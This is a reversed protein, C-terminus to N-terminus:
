SVNEKKQLESVYENRFEKRYQCWGVFNGSRYGNNYSPKAVHEFPSWHGSSSLRDHLEYDKDHDRTGDHTLYSVRACRAASLMKQKEIDLTREDEQLYPLHWEDFRTFRPESKLYEERMMEAINRIEPQAAPHCRLSFFNNWETATVIVTIEMFPELVRNVLQKHLGLALLNEAQEVAADRARLWQAMAQAKESEDLEVEAQMGSQNKGWWVPMAPDEKVKSLMKTIPIARSSAANRSFDRHTMFESHVFRQYTIEMTTIRKQLPSVSDAIIKAKTM